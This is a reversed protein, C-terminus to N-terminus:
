TQLVTKVWTKYLPVRQAVEKCADAFVGKRIPLVPM